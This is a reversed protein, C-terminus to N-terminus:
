SGEGTKERRYLAMMIAGFLTMASANDGVGGVGNTPPGGFPKMMDMIGSRAWWAATDFARRNAEPGRTGYGTMHAFILRPNRKKLDEYQLRYKKLQASNFNVLLIDADDLLRLLVEQAEAQSIDM